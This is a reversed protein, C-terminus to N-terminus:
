REAKAFLPKQFAQSRFSSYFTNPSPSYKQICIFLYVLFSSTKVKDAKKWGGGGKKQDFQFNHLNKGYYTYLYCGVGRFGFIM